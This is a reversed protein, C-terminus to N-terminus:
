VAVAEKSATQRWGNATQEVKGSEALHILARYISTPYKDLKTALQRVTLQQGNALQGYVADAVTTKHSPMGLGAGISENPSEKQNDHCRQLHPLSTVYRGFVYRGDTKFEFAIWNETKMLAHWQDCEALAAHENLCVGLCQWKGPADTIDWLDDYTM